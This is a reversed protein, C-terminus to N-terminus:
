SLQMGGIILILYLQKHVHDIWCSSGVYVTCTAKLIDSTCNKKLCAGHADFHTDIHLWSGPDCNDLM